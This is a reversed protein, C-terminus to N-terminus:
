LEIWAFMEGCDIGQGGEFIIFIPMMRVLQYYM